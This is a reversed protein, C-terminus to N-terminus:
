KKGYPVLINDSRYSFVNKKALKLVKKLNEVWDKIKIDTSDYSNLIQIIWNKWEEAIFSELIKTELRENSNYLDYIMLEYFAKEAYDYAKKRSGHFWEYASKAFYEVASSKWLGKIDTNEYVRGRTLVSLTSDDISISNEECTKLFYDIIEEESNKNSYLLLIKQHIKHRM